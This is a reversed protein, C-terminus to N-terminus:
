LGDPEEFIELDDPNKGAQEAWASRERKRKEDTEPLEHIDPQQKQETM